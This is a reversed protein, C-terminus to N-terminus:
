LAQVGNVDADQANKLSQSWGTDGSNDYEGRILPLSTRPLAFVLSEYFSTHLETQM